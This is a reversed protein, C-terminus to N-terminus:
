ASASGGRQGAQVVVAAHQTAVVLLLLLLMLVLAVYFTARQALTTEAKLANQQLYIKRGAIVRLGFVRATYLPSIICRLASEAGTGPCEGRRVAAPRPPFRRRLTAESFAYLRDSCVSGGSVFCCM